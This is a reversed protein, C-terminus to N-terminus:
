IGIWKAGETNKESVKNEAPMKASNHPKRASKPVRVIVLGVTLCAHFFAPIHSIKHECLLHGYGAEYHAIGLISSQECTKSKWAQGSLLPLVQESGNNRNNRTFRFHFVEMIPGAPTERELISTFQQEKRYAIM